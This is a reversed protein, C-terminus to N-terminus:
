SYRSRRNLRPTLSNPDAANMTNMTHRTATTVNSGAMVSLATVPADISAHMRIQPTRVM